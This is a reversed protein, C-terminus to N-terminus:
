RLFSDLKDFCGLWGAHHGDFNPQDDFPGHVLTLETKNGVARFTLEREKQELGICGTGLVVAVVLLAFALWQLRLSTPRLRIM